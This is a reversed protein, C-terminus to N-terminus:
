STKGFDIYGVVLWQKGSRSVTLGASQKGQGKDQAILKGSSDHVVIADVTFTVTAAGSNNDNALPV